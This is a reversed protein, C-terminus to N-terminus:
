GPDARVPRAHVLEHRERQEGGPGARARRRRLELQGRGREREGARGARPGSYAFTMATGGSVPNIATTQQKPNYSLSTFAPSATLDGNGDWVFPSPVPCSGPTSGQYCLENAANYSFYTSTGNVTQSVRNGAGDYVYGFSSGGSKAASALRGVGDYGYSWSGNFSADAWTEVASLRV